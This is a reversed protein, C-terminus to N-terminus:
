VSCACVRCGDGRRRDLVAGEDNLLIGLREPGIRAPVGIADLM